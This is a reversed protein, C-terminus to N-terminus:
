HGGQVLLCWAQKGLTRLASNLSKLVATVAGHSSVGARAVDQRGRQPKLVHVWSDGGLSQPVRGESIPQGGSRTCITDGKPLGGLHRCM